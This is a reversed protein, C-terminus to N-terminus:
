QTKLLGVIREAERLGSLYAGHTTAAYYRNTAEGAFFLKNAIPEALIDYDHGSAGLPIYSYSGLSFPDEAWRTLMFNTPEPINNGFWQQLRQMIMAYINENTLKEFQRATDAGLSGMLIPKKYFYYYNIFWTFDDYRDQLVTIIRTEQPWFLKPFKLFFKDLVGMNLKNIAQKKREPLDPQFKIRGQKLVGLPVTVIVFDAHYQGHNTHVTIQSGTYDITNVETQLLVTLQSALYNIIPQYGDHMFGNNESFLTEDEHWHRASLYQLETGTYFNLFLTQWALFEKILLPYKERIFVKEIAVSLPMDMKAQYAYQNADFLLNQYQESVEKLETASKQQKCNVFFVKSRDIPDIQNNIRRTLETIPNGDVGHIVFAGLDVPLDDLYETWIRGGIRNRAELLVVDISHTVLHKAAAVGAFGAGIVLVQVKNKMM